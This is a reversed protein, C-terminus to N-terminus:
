KGCARPSKWSSKKEGKMWACFFFFFFSFFSGVSNFGAGVGLRGCADYWCFPHPFFNEAAVAICRRERPEGAPLGWGLATASPGSSFAAFDATWPAAAAGSLDMWRTRTSVSSQKRTRKRSDWSGEAVAASVVPIDRM